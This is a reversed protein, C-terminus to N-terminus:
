APPLAQDLLAAAREVDVKAASRRTILRTVSKSSVVHVDNVKGEGGFLPFDGDVFCLVMHIPTTEGPPLARVVTAQQRHLGEVLKTKGRDAVVLENDGFVKSVVVIRGKYKKADVIWIGSPAVVIHDINAKSGPIQRDDLVVCTESLKRNLLQSLEQEGEAGTKWSVENQPPESFFKAIAGLKGTGWQEEIQAHRKAQRREYERLASAGANGGVRVADPVPLPPKPPPPAVSANPRTVQTSPVLPQVPTRILPEMRGPLSRARGDEVLQRSASAVRDIDWGLQKALTKRALGHTTPIKSYLVHADNTGGAM